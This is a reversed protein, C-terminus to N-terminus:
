YVMFLVYMGLAFTSIACLAAMVKLRTPLHAGYKGISYFLPPYVSGAAALGLFSFLFLLFSPYIEGASVAHWHHLALLLITAVFSVLPVTRNFESTKTAPYAMHAEATPDEYLVEMFPTLCRANVESRRTM